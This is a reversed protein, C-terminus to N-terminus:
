EQSSPGTLTVSNVQIALTGLGLPMANVVDLVQRFCNMGDSTNILSMFLSM